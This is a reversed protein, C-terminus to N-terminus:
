GPVPAGEPILGEAKLAAWLEAPIPMAMLEANRRVEAASVAGPIVAVVAPHALPFQLAAAPLPVGFRDCVAEIRGARAIVEAPARGYDYRAAGSKVGTALVGSNYPGGIIVRVGQALCLPLVEALAGQELLTYRSAMLVYDLKCRELFYVPAEVDNIGVGIGQVVGQSRLTDLARYAGEVAQPAYSDYADGHAKRDIDHIFAIDIRPLSLRQLSDELARMAGDYGYDFEPKFPLGGRWNDPNPNGAPHPRLLRGVKTSLVFEDRPRWRLGQGTRHESLGYGYFPATDFYRIDADWAASIAAQAEEESVVVNM